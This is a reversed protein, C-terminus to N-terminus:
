RLSKPKTRASRGPDLARLARFAAQRQGGDYGAFWSHGAAVKLAEDAIERAEGLRGHERFAISRSALYEAKRYEPTSCHALVAELRAIDLPGAKRIAEWWDFEANEAPNPDWEDRRRASRLKAAVQEATLVRGGALKYLFHNSSADDSRRPLGETLDVVGYGSRALADQIDRAIEVRTSPLSNTRVHSMLRDAVRRRRYQPAAEVISAAVQGIGNVAVLSLLEEFTASLLDPSVGARTGGALLARVATPLSVLGRDVMEVALPAAFPPMARIVIGLVDDVADFQGTGGAAELARTFKEVVEIGRATIPGDALAKDLWVALDAMRYDKHSGAGASARGARHLWERWDDAGLSNLCSAIDLCAEQRLRPDDEQADETFSLALEIADSKALVGTERFALAFRRCCIGLFASSSKVVELVVDCLATMGRDGFTHAVDLLEDFMVWRSGIISPDLHSDYNPREVVRSEYLLVDRFKRRLENPMEGRAAQSRLIGLRQAALEVRALAEDRGSAVTRERSPGLGLQERLCTLSAQFSLDSPGTGTGSRSHPDSGADSLSEVIARASDHDGTSYLHEALDLAQYPQDNCHSLAGLLSSKSVPTTGKRACLLLAALEWDPKKLDVIARLLLEEVDEGLNARVATKLSDFLLRARVPAVDGEREDAEVLIELNGIQAVVDEVPEFLPAASCWARATDVTAHEYSGADVLSGHFLHGIPKADGYLKRSVEKLGQSNRATAYFWVKRSFSLAVDDKVLLRGNAQLQALALEHEGFDLFASGLQEADLHGSRQHLESDLLILRVVHGFEELSWALSTAELVIPRVVAYPVLAQVSERLWVSTAVELVEPERGARALYFVHARGLPDSCPQESSRDALESYYDREKAAHDAGPLVSRTREVLFAILSNHIFSLNGDDERAFPALVRKYLDEVDDKEPWKQLWVVPISPAARCLLGLLQRMAPEQLPKALAEAYFGDIDGNFRTTDKIAGAVTGTSSTRVFNLLYTLILPNGASDHYLRDRDDESTEGLAKASIQHIESRSLGDVAIHRGSSPTVAESIVSGVTDAALAEPRASLVILFGDPIEAPVPLEHLISERLGVERAVHDLGDVLLVTKRGNAVFEKNARAMHERLADRGHIISDIGLSRRGPFVKDLRAVVNRFFTLAEGRDRPNGQGYPLFAFYPILITRKEADVVDQVLTSKGVGACGTVAVYGGNQTQLMRRLENAASQNRQYPIEPLPFSQVLESQYPQLGIATMLYERDVFESNPFKAIWTALGDHLREIQKLYQRSDENDPGITPPQSVGLSFDCARVFENLDEGLLGTHSEVARWANRVPEPAAAEPGREWHDTLFQEVSLRPVIRGGTTEAAPFSTQLRVKIGYGPWAEKLLQFGSALERLLGDAGVLHGWTMPSQNERWKISNGEVRDEWVLVIDDVRGAQVDALRVSVLRPGGHRLEDKLAWGIREAASKDQYGYGRRANREGLAPAASRQRASTTKSLAADRMEDTTVM